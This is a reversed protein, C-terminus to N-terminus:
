RCFWCGNFLQGTVRPGFRALAFAGLQASFQVIEAANAATGWNDNSAIDAGGGKWLLRCLGGSGCAGYPLNRIVARPGRSVATARGSRAVSTM